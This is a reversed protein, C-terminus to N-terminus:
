RLWYIGYGGSLEDYVYPKSQKTVIMFDDVSIYTKGDKIVANHKLEMPTGNFILKNDSVSINVVTTNGVTCEVTKSKDNWGLKYEVNGIGNMLELFARLPIMLTGDTEVYATDNIEFLMGKTEAYKQEPFFMLIEERLVDDFNEFENIHINMAKETQGKLMNEKEQPLKEWLYVEIGNDTAYMDYIGYEDRNLWINGADYKYKNEDNLATHSVKNIDATVNDTAAFSTVATATVLVAATILGCIKKM